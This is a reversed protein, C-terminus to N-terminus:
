HHMLVPLDAAGLVERTAGGLIFEALRSHTYAGMVLLDAGVAHAQALLAEGIKRGNAQFRVVSLPVGAQELTLMQSAPVAEHDGDETEVLVTVQEARLLLPLAADIARNAAESPKWAVAVSKGLSIPVAEQVFLTTLRAEFLAEHVAQRADGGQTGAARGLVILDAKAAADAIVKATEGVVERWDGIGSELRWANFV